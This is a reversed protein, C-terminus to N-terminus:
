LHGGKRSVSVAPVHHGPESPGNSTPSIHADELGSIAPDSPSSGHECLAHSFSPAESGDAQEGKSARSVYTFEQLLQRLSEVSIALPYLTTTVNRLYFKGKRLFLKEDCVSFVLLVPENERM